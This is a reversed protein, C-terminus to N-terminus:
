DVEFLNNFGAAKFDSDLTFVDRTKLEKMVVFSVCDTFSFYHDQYKAMFTLAEGFISKTIGVIEIDSAYIENVFELLSQVSKKHRCRALTLFEDLVYDTTVFGHGLNAYKAFYDLIEKSGHPGDSRNAFEILASTDVFIQNKM